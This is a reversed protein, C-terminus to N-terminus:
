PRASRGSWVLLVGALLGWVLLALLASSAPGWGERLTPAVHAFPAIRAWLTTGGAQAPDGHAHMVEANMRNVLDRRYREAHDIFRRQHQYDTGALSPSLAHLAAAPSALTLQAFARDQAVVRDHFGGLVRDFVAQAHREARDLQAGRLNVPLDEVRTVGHSALLEAEQARGREANWYAPADDQLQQRIEQSSPLPVRTDALHSIWRPLALAFLLWAGFLVGLAVRVSGLRVCLAVGVGAQLALWLSMAGGWAALRLLLDADMAQRWAAVALAAAIVPLLWVAVALSWVALAKTAVLRTPSHAAGLALRWSGREREQAVATYALLFVLLPAFGILLGAPSTLGARQLPTAEGRPRELLDNQRHAELWVTQGVFPEIGPELAVLLPTPKFAHISYHAASHPDKEGQGLWREREAAAVQARADNARLLERMNGAFTLLVLAALVLVAWRVRRERALLTWELALLAPM